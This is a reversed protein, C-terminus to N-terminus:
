AGSIAQWRGHLVGGSATADSRIELRFADSACVLSQILPDDTEGVEYVARCTIPERQGSNTSLTGAGRWSGLLPRFPGAARAFGAHPLSTLLFVPLLSSTAAPVSIPRSM